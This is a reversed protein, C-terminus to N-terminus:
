RMCASVSYLLPISGINANIPYLILEAWSEKSRVNVYRCWEGFLVLKGGIGKSYYYDCSYDYYYHLLYLVLLLLLFM